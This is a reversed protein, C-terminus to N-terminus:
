SMAGTALDPPFMPVMGTPLYLTTSRKRAELDLESNPKVISSPDAIHIWLKQRGDALTEVSVGDDIETTSEDDITYVKLKTLDLRETDNLDPEKIAYNKAVEIVKASFEVPIQSRLLFINTHSDWWGVDVLLQRASEATQNKHLLTLTETAIKNPQDPQLVYKELMELRTRDSSGWEVKEGEKCKEVRWLFEEQEKQRQIEVAIQHKIENVQALSRPQYSDGKQKFYIKDETLLCYAAYCLVPSQDSFLVDAMGSPDINEGDEVLIEWAVELSDPDIYSKVEQLFGSIETSKKLTQGKVEYTIQRPHITHSQNREDIVIWHKKGEPRDIMALRRSGNQIFEILTGKEM